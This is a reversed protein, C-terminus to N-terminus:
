LLDQFPQVQYYIKLSLERKRIYICETDYPVKGVNLFRECIYTTETRTIVTSHVDPSYLVFLNNLLVFQISNFEFRFKRQKRKFNRKTGKLLYNEIKLPKATSCKKHIYKTRFPSNCHVYQNQYWSFSPCQITVHLFHMCYNFVSQWLFTKSLM